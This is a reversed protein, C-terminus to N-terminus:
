VATEFFMGFFLCFAYVAASLFMVSDFRDAIGGHGPLIRGFDKAGLDRKIASAALDGLQATLSAPVALALLAAFRPASLATDPAFLRIALAYLAFGLVAGVVGCVMGAVTKKPSLRPALRRKGFLKGGFIAFTDSMWAAIFVLLYARHSCEASGGVCCGCCNCCGGDRLRVLAYFSFAAFASSMFAAAANGFSVKPYAFVCVCLLYLLFLATLGLFARLCLAGRAGDGLQGFLSERRGCCECRASLVAFFCYLATPIVIHPKKGLPSACVMECGAAAALLGFVLPFVVTDAFFLVPIFVILAVVATIIRTKM